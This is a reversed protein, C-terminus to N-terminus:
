KGCVTGERWEKIQVGKEQCETVYRAIAACTASYLGEYQCSDFVCDTFYSTPDLIEKCQSLPGDELTLVGCYHQSSYKQTEKDSCEPCNGVCGVKCEPVNGVKYRDEFKIGDSATVNPTLDDLPDQNYNGCLGCLANAYTNPVMVRGYNDWNYNMTVEFDTRVFAHEGKMFVKIANSEM